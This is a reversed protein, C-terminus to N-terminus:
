GSGSAHTYVCVKMCVCGYRHISVCMWVHIGPHASPAATRSRWAPAAHLLVTLLSRKKVRARMRRM